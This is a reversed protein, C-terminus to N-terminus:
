LCRSRITPGHWRFARCPKRGWALKTVLPSAAVGLGTAVITRLAQRRSMGHRGLRAIAGELEDSDNSM